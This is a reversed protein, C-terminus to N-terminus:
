SEFCGIGGVTCHTGGARKNGCIQFPDVHDKLERPKNLLVYGYVQVISFSSEMILGVHNGINGVLYSIALNYGYWFQTLDEVLNIVKGLIFM